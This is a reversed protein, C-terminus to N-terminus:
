DLEAGYDFVPITFGRSTNPITQRSSERTSAITGSHFDMWICCNWARPPLCDIWYCPDCATETVICSRSCPHDVGCLVDFDRDGREVCIDARIRPAANIEGKVKQTQPHQHKPNQRFM